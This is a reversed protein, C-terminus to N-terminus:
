GVVCSCFLSPRPDIGKKREEYRIAGVDSLDKLLPQWSYEAAKNWVFLFFESVARQCVRAFM